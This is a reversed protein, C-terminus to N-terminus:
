PDIDVGIRPLRAGVLGVIRLQLPLLDTAKAEGLQLPHRPFVTVQVPGEVQRHGFGEELGSEEPLNPLRDLLDGL